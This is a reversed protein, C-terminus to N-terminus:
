QGKAPEIGTPQYHEMEQIQNFFPRTLKLFHQFDPSSSFRTFARGGLGVRDAPSLPQPAEFVAHASLGLVSAIRCPVKQAQRYSEEFKADEGEAVQYRIVEVVM